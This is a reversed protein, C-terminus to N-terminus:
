IHLTLLSHTLKGGPTFNEGYPHSYIGWHHLSETPGKMRRFMLSPEGRPTFSPTFLRGLSCLEDRPGLEPRPFLGQPPPAVLTTLFQGRDAALDNLVIELIGKFL